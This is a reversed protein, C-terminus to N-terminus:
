KAMMPFCVINKNKQMEEDCRRVSFRYQGSIKFSDLSDWPLTYYVIDRIDNNKFFGVVFYISDQPIKLERGSQWIANIRKPAHGQPNYSASKSGRCKIQIYFPPQGIKFIQNLTDYAIGDFGPTDFSTAFVGQLNLLSIYINEATKGILRSDIM